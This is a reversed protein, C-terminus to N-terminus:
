KAGSQSGFQGFRVRFGQNGDPFKIETTRPYRSAGVVAYDAFGLTLGSGLGTKSEFIIFTPLLQADLSINYAESKGELRLRQEGSGPINATKATAQM